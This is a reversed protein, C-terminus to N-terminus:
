TKSRLRKASQGYRKSWQVQDLSFTFTAYPRLNTGDERVELWEPTEFEKRAPEGTSDIPKDISGSWKNSGLRLECKVDTIISGSRNDVDIVLQSFTFKAAGLAIQTGGLGIDPFVHNAARRMERRRNIADSFFVLVAALFVALFTAGAGAWTGWAEVWNPNWPRIWFRAGVSFGVVLGGVLGVLGAVLAWLFRVARFV